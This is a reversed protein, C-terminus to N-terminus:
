NKKSVKKVTTKGDVTNIKLVYMGATYGSMDIKTSTTSIILQGVINYVEINSIDTNSQITVFDETPNPYIKLDQIKNSTTSLLLEVTITTADSECTATTQTVYYTEGNVLLTTAPLVITLEADQYWTVTGTATVDLDSLTDGEEFNQLSQAAPGSPLANVTVIVEVRDSICTNGAANVQVWYSTTETLGTVTYEAGTFIPTVANASEYWTIIGGPQSSSATLSVSSGTCISVVTETSIELACVTVTIAAAASQCTATTQTVYYTAGNVLLTTAPLVITLQADQYWTTTGTVSIDLDALTTGEEFSQIAAAQPIAPVPNVTVVIEVRNSVCATTTSNVQVWYSTTETLATTSYVEGAFFPTVANASEYWTVIGSEESSTATLSVSSGGCISVATQTVVTITCPVVTITIEAYILPNAVSTARITATGSTIGTVIGTTGISAFEEGEQVTWTVQQSFTSPTVTSSLPLTGGVFVQANVNGVTAVIVVPEEVEEEEFLFKKIRYNADAVYLNQDDDLAVSIPQSLESSATSVVDYLFVGNQWLTVRNQSQHSYSLILKGDDMVAIGSVRVNTTGTAAIDAMLTGEAAGSEWKSVRDGSYETIYISDEDDVFIFGTLEPAALQNAAFGFGNGGAVVIGENADLPWKLVRANGDLIYLIDDKKFIANPLSLQNLANGWGNGGAVTIGETAGDPWQQVRANLADVVYLVSQEEDYWIGCPASLQNAAAGQGNGGAVTVGTTAGAAWKQVRNNTIDSIYIDGNSAVYLDTINGLQDNGSGFGNGGAVVTGPVTWSQAYGSKSYSLLILLILVIRKM